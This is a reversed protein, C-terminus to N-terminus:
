AKSKELLQALAEIYGRPLKEIWLEPNLHPPVKAIEQELKRLKEEIEPDLYLSGRWVFHKFMVDKLVRPLMAVVFPNHGRNLLYIDIPHPELGRRMHDHENDKGPLTKMREEMKARLELAYDKWSEILKNEVEEYTAQKPDFMYRPPNLEKKTQRDLERKNAIIFQLAKEIARKAKEVSHAKKAKKLEEMLPHPLPHEPPLPPMGGAPDRSPMIM